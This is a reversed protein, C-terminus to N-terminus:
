RRNEVAKQKKTKKVGEADFRYLDIHANRLLFASETMRIHTLNSFGTRSVRWTATRFSPRFIALRHQPVMSQPHEKRSLFDSNASGTTKWRALGPGIIDSFTFTTGTFNKESALRPKAAPNHDFM